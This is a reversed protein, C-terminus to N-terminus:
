PDARENRQENPSLPADYPDTEDTKIIRYRKGKPSTFAKESLVSTENPMGPRGRSEDASETSDNNTHSARAKKDHCSM